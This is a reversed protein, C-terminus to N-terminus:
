APEDAGILRELRVDPNRQAFRELGFRNPFVAVRAGDGCVFVDTHGSDALVEVAGVPATTM